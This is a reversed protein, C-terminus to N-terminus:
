EAGNVADFADPYQIRLARTHGARTQSEATVVRAGRSVGGRCPEEPRGVVGCFSLLVPPPFYVSVPLRTRWAQRLAGM